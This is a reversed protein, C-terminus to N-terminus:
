RSYALTKRLLEGLKEAFQSVPVESISQPYFEKVHQTDPGLGVGILTIPPSHKTLRSITDTLDQSSSHKGEPYGDSVAILIREYAPQELLLDAAHQLCPGDDNHEPCNHGNPRNGSIEMPMEGIKQRIYPSLTEGFEVFPLVIDQFGLVSFPVHIRSLTETLLITGCLAAESKEGEMSGSLDILLTIATIRREPVTKRTWIRNYQRPDAEFAMLQRLDVIQGTAYGSRKGLRRRPRLLQEFTRTLHDIQQAVKQLAIDYRQKPPPLEVHRQQSRMPRPLRRHPQRPLDSPLPHLAAERASILPQTSSRQNQFWRDFIRLPLTSRSPERESPLKEKLSERLIRHLEKQDDKNLAEKADTASQPNKELMQQIRDLDDDLLKAALPLIEEEALVISQLASLCVGQERRPVSLLRSSLQLRPIVFRQFWTNVQPDFSGPSLHTPPLTLAYKRRAERTADLTERVRPPLQITSPLPNWHFAYEGACALCFSVFAPRQDLEEWESISDRNAIDIWAQVGPYRQSIWTNVRPDEIGNLLYGLAPLSPFDIRFLNYRSIFFHGVEHALIGACFEPGRKKLDDRAVLIVRRLPDYAWSSQSLEVNIGIDLCLGTALAQLRSMHTEVLM